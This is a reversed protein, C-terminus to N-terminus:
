KSCNYFCCEGITYLRKPLIISKLNKCNDFTFDGVKCIDDSMQVYKLQYFEEFNFISIKSLRHRDSVTVFQASRTEREAIDSVTIM